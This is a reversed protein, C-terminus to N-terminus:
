QGIAVRGLPDHGEGKGLTGGLLQFVPDAPSGLVTETRTRQVAQGAKEHPGDM